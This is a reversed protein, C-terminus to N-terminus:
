EQGTHSKGGGGGDGAGAVMEAARLDTAHQSGRLDAFYSQLWVGGARRRVWGARLGCARGCLVRSHARGVWGCSSALLECPPPPHDALSLSLSHARVSAPAAVSTAPSSLRMIHCASAAEDTPGTAWFAGEPLNKAMSPAMVQWAVCFFLCKQKIFDPPLHSVGATERRGGLGEFVTQLGDRPSGALRANRPTAERDLAVRQRTGRAWGSDPHRREIL